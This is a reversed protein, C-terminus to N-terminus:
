INKENKLGNFFKLHSRMACACYFTENKNFRKGNLKFPKLVRDGNSSYTCVNIYGLSELEKRLKTFEPHDKHSLSTYQINGNVLIDVLQEHTLEKTTDYKYKIHNNPVDTLYEESIFFERMIIPAPSLVRVQM